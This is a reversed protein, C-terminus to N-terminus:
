KCLIEIELKCFIIRIQCVFRNKAVAYVETDNSVSVVLVTVSLCVKCCIVILVRCTVHIRVKCTRKGSVNINCIIKLEACFFLFYRVLPIRFFELELCYNFWSKFVTLYNRRSIDLFDAIVLRTCEENAVPAICTSRLYMNRILSSTCLANMCIACSDLYDFFRGSIHSILDNLRHDVIHLANRLFEFVM